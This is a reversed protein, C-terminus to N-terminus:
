GNVSVSLLGCATEFRETTFGDLLQCKVLRDSMTPFLRSHMDDLILFERVEPHEALWAVIEAGRPVPGSKERSEADYSLVPTAWYEHLSERPFKRGLVKAIGERDYRLRWDSSIVIHANSVESLTAVRQIRESCFEAEPKMGGSPVPIRVVGDFDLFIVKMDRGFAVSRNVRGREPKGCQNRQIPEWTYPSLRPNEAKPNPISDIRSLNNGKVM